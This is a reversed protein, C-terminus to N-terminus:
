YGNTCEGNLLNFDELQHDKPGYLVRHFRLYWEIGNALIGEAWRRMKQRRLMKGLVHVGSCGDRRSEQHWSRDTCRCCEINNTLIRGEWSWM